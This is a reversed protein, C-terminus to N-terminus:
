VEKLALGILSAHKGKFQPFHKGIVADDIITIPTAINERILTSIELLQPNDGMMIIEDVTREGKHLSFRFFNLIRDLELVQDTIRLIYDEVNGSYTFDISSEKITAVWKSMDTDIVQFRLFEVNGNSYICIILENILWDAILYTKEDDIMNMKELVRLNSLARIDAVEPHLHVDQLIGTFKGVEDPPVAFIVAQGDDPNADYVDILPDQFPLHINRGLEMEVYEKLADSKIESPHEFVKLLVSTDPVFIRVSQKKGGLKTVNSKILEFLAMEDVISAEEVVGKPVEIEVMHWQHADPGKKVLGRLVYDNLEISVSSKKNFQFM